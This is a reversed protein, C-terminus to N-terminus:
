PVREQDMRVKPCDLPGFVTKRVGAQRGAQGDDACIGSAKIVMCGHAVVILPEFAHNRDVRKKSYLRAVQEPDGARSLPSVMERM